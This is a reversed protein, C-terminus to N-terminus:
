KADLSLLFSKGLRKLERRSKVVMRELEREGRM